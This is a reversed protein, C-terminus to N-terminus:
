PNSATKNAKIDTGLRQLYAILAIIERNNKVKIKDLYLNDSILKAQKDLDRNAINEYGLPYPVGLIRMAHIKARTTTTDLKQSILWDYEPMISGPSMLRPDM